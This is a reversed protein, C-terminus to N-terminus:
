NRLENYNLEKLEFVQWQEYFHKLLNNIRDLNHELMYWQTNTINDRDKLRLSSDFFVTDMVNEGMNNKYELTVKISSAKGGSYPTMRVIVTEYANLKEKTTTEYYIDSALHLDGYGTNWDYESVAFTYKKGDFEVYGLRGESQDLTCYKKIFSMRFFMPVLVFFIVLLAVAISAVIIFFRRIKM